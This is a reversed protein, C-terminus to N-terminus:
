SQLPTKRYAEAVHQELGSPIEHSSLGHEDTVTTLFLDAFTFACQQAQSERVRAAAGLLGIEAVV